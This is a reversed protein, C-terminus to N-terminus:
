LKTELEEPSRQEPWIEQPARINQAERIEGWLGSGTITFATTELVDKHYQIIGLFLLIFALLNESDMCIGFELSM